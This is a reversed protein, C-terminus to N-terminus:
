REGKHAHPKHETFVRTITPTAECRMRNSVHGPSSRCRGIAISAFNLRGRYMGEVM